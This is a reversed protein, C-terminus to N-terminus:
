VLVAILGEFKSAGRQRPNGDSGSRTFTRHSHGHERPCLHSPTWLTGAVCRSWFRPMTSSVSVSPREAASIAGTVFYVCSPFMDASAPCVCKNRTMCSFGASTEVLSMVELTRSAYRFIRHRGGVGRSRFDLTVVTTELIGRSAFARVCM